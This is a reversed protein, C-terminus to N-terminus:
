TKRDQKQEKRSSTTVPQLDPFPTLKSPYSTPTLSSLIRTLCSIPIMTSNNNNYKFTATINQSYHCQNTKYKCIIGKNSLELRTTIQDNCSTSWLIKITPNDRCSTTVKEVPTSLRATKSMRYIRTALTIKPM